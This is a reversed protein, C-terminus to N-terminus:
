FKIGKDTIIDEAIIYLDAHSVNELNSVQVHVSSIASVDVTIVKLRVNFKGIVKVCECVGPMKMVAKTFRQMEKESSDELNLTIFGLIELNLLKRNIVAHRGTIFGKNTLRKIRECITAISKNLRYAIQKQPMNGDEQLLRLISKDFEDIKEKRVSCNM